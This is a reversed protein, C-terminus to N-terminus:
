PAPPRLPAIRRLPVGSWVVCGAAGVGWPLGNVKGPIFARGNGASQLVTAV